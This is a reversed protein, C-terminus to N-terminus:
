LSFPTQGREREGGLLSSNKLLYFTGLQTEFLFSFLSLEIKAMPILNRYSFSPMWTSTQPQAVKRGKDHAAKQTAALRRGTM